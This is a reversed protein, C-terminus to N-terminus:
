YFITRCRHYPRARFHDDQGLQWLWGDVQASTVTRGAAHFGQRLAEVAHLTLARIEVEEARGPAIEQGADVKGALEPHYSLIGLQRLVQPLKYDAFATLEALDAFAGWRSGAFAAALDAVFIQARKWFYVRHGHYCAEDRFSPFDRTLLHLLRTARGSAAEVLHVVDGGWTEQLVRGAQRLNHARESLMPMVGGGAFIQELDKITIGALFAPATIPWGGELALRLGAALGWYGSYDRGRYRVTWVPEGPDPWFCHNLVDLVFVWRVTAETGDALHCPHDWSASPALCRGWAAVAGAVAEPQFSVWRAGAVVPRISGLVPIELDNVDNMPVERVSEARRPAM